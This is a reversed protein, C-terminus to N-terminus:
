NLRTPVSTSLLRDYLRQYSQVMASLSFLGMARKRAARGHADILEPADLYREIAAALAAVDNAPVLAGSEGDSVLEPNGGVDSAIVALGTSMSELITNSIGENRSPLVFLHMARLLNAIDARRGPMYVVDQVDLETALNDLSELEPGDGVIVLRLTDHFRSGAAALQAFARLLLDFNKIRDLRGVTGIIVLDRGPRGFPLAASRGEPCFRDVDVGNYIHQVRRQGVHVVDRLWVEIDRSVAVYETVAFNCIRRLLRYKTSRGFPDDADWGHEGHIRVPVRAVKALPVLDLTGLNRTHLLAPKLKRILRWFRLYFSLDKGEKKHLEHIEINGATLREAFDSSKTVCIIAHRYCGEPLGNILNVLGNEMGGVDLRFIVHAILPRQPVEIPQQSTVGTMM